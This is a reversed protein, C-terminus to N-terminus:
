ALFIRVLNWTNQVQDDFKYQFGENWIGVGHFKDDEFQGIYRDRNEFVQEGLGDFRDSVYDGVYTDGEKSEFTGLGHRKGDRWHGWYSRVNVLEYGGDQLWKKRM